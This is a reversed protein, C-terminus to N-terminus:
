PHDSCTSRPTTWNRDHYDILAAHRLHGKTFGLVGALILHVLRRWRRRLVLSVVVLGPVLIAVVQAITVALQRVTVPFLAVVDAGDERLGDNRGEALGVFLMLATTAVGWVVLRIVDGPHRFYREGPPLDDFRNDVPIAEPTTTAPASLSAREVTM